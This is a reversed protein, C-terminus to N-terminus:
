GLGLFRLVEFLRDPYFLVAIWNAAGGFVGIAILAQCFRVRLTRWWRMSEGYRAIFAAEDPPGLLFALGLCGIFPAVWCSPGERYPEGNVLDLWNMILVAFGVVTMLLGIGPIFFKNNVFDPKAM